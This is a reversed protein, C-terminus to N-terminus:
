QDGALSLRRTVVQRAGSTFELLSEADDSEAAFATIPGFVQRAEAPTCTPLYVRLVRPDYYRFLMRRGREDQVKLFKRLQHRLNSPDEIKLLVGWAHGWGEALLKETFRHGPLLEILHPAVVELARPLRGSYLCRFELRSELLARYIAPDRACDLVAWVSLRASAGEPWLAREIRELRQTTM